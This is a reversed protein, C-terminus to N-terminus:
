ARGSFLYTRGGDTPTSAGRKVMNTVVHLQHGETGVRPTYRVSRTPQSPLGLIRRLIHQLADSALHLPLEFLLRACSLSTPYVGRRRPINTIILGFSTLTLPTSTMDSFMTSRTITSYSLSLSIENQPSVNLGRMIVTYPGDMLWYTEREDSGRGVGIVAIIVAM